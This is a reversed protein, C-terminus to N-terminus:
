VDKPTVSYTEKYNNYDHIRGKRHGIKHIMLGHNNVM